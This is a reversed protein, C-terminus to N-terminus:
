NEGKQKLIKKLEKLLKNRCRANRTDFASRTLDPNLSSFFEWMENINKGELLGTFLTKCYPSLRKIAFVFKNKIEQQEIKKVVDISEDVFTSNHDGNTDTLVRHKGKRKQIENGIKNILIKLAYREPHDSIGDLKNWFVELTEQLIDEQDEPSWGCCRYKISMRLRVCLAEILENLCNLNGGQAAKLLSQWDVIQQSM